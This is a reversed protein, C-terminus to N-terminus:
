MFIFKKKNLGCKWFGYNEVDSACKFWMLEFQNNNKKMLELGKAKRIM